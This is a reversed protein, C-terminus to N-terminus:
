LTLIFEGSSQWSNWLRSIIVLLLKRVRRHLHRIVSHETDISYRRIIVLIRSVLLPFLTIGWELLQDLQHGGDLTEM